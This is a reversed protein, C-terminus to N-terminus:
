ASASGKGGGLCDPTERAQRHRAQWEEDTLTEMSLAHIGTALEDKLLGNIRQHRAVLRQGAFEQSVVLLKFHSESGPPVSHKYSENVVELHSPALAGLLKEEITKQMSM